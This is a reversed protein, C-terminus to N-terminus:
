LISSFWPLQSPLRGLNQDHHPCMGHVLMSTPWRKTCCFKSVWILDAGVGTPSWHVPPLPFSFDFINYTHVYWLSYLKCANRLFTAVVNKCPVYTCFFDIPLIHQFHIGRLHEAWGVNSHIQLTLFHLFCLTSVPNWALMKAHLKKTASFNYGWKIADPQNGFMHQLSTISTSPHLHRLGFRVQVVCNPRRGTVTAATAIWEVSCRLIHFTCPGLFASVQEEPRQGPGFSQTWSGRPTFAVDWNPIGYWKEETTRPIEFPVCKLTRPAVERWCGWHKQMERPLRKDDWIKQRNDHRHEHFMRIRLGGERWSSVLGASSFYARQHSLMTNSSLPRWFM